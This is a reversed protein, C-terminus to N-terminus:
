EDYGYVKMGGCIYFPIVPHGPRGVIIHLFEHRVVHDSDAYARTVYVKRSMPEARAVFGGPITDVVIVEPQQMNSGHEGACAVTARWLQAYHQERVGPCSTFLFILLLFMLIAPWARDNDRM